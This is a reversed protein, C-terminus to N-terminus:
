KHRKVKYTWNYGETVTGPALNGMGVPIGNRDTMPIGTIAGRIIDAIQEPTIRSSRGLLTNMASMIGGEQHVLGLTHGIEHAATYTNIFGNYLTIGKGSAAGCLARKIEMEIYFHNAAWALSASFPLLGKKAENNNIYKGMYLLLPTLSFDIRYNDM